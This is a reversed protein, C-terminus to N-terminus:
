GGWFFLLPMHAGKGLLSEPTGTEDEIFLHFTPTKQKIVVSTQEDGAESVMVAPAFAQRVANEGGYSSPVYGQGKLTTIFDAQLPTIEPTIWRSVSTVAGVAFLGMSDFRVGAFGQQAVQTTESSQRWAYSGLFTSTVSRVALQGKAAFLAMNFDGGIFTVDHKKVMSALTDWVLEWHPKYGNAQRTHGM